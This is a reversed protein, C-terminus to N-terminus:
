DSLAREILKRAEHTMPLKVAAAHGRESMKRWTRRLIQIVKEEEHAHKRAFDAFYSELFVLCIVDELTQTEPDDKLREKRILSQVRAIAFHDCGAQQLLSAVTTAHFKALETRWTYYGARTMPYTSRPIMWRQIHQARAALKLAESANPELKELWATMRQSYLLENPHEVGDITTRSPDQRNADDILAIATTFCDTSMDRKTAHTKLGHM